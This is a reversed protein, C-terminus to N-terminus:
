YNRNTAVDHVLEIPIQVTAVGDLVTGLIVGKEEMEALAAQDTFSVFSNVYQQGNAKVSLPSAAKKGNSSAEVKNQKIQDLMLQSYTNIKNSPKQEIQSYGYLPNFLLMAGTLALLTSNKM